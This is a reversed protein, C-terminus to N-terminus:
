GDSFFGNSGTGDKEFLWPWPRTLCDRFVPSASSWQWENRTGCLEARVPNEEIYDSIFHFQRASQVRTEYYGDEWECGIEYLRQKTERSIWRCLNRMFASITSDAKPALLLHWHDPMVVFAAMTMVGRSAYFRFSGCVAARAADDLAPKRPAVSKTVFWCGSETMRRHLRLNRSHAGRAPM